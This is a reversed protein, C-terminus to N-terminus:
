RVDILNTRRRVELEMVLARRDPERLPWSDSTRARGQSLFIARRRQAQLHHALLFHDGMESRRWGLTRLLDFLLSGAKDKLIRDLRPGFTLRLLLELLGRGLRRGM